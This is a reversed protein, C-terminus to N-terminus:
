TRLESHSAIINAFKSKFPHDMTYLLALCEHDNDLDASYLAM